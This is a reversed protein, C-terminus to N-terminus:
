CSRMGTLIIAFSFFSMIYHMGFVFVVCFVWLCHSTCFFLLDVVVFVLFSGLYKTIFCPGFM